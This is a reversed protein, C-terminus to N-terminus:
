LDTLFTQSDVAGPKFVVRLRFTTRNNQVRNNSIVVSQVYPLDRLQDQYANVATANESIAEVQLANGDEATFRTFYIDEPRFQNVADLMEFPLLQNTTIQNIKALIDAKQQVEEARPATDDAVAQRKEYLKALAVLGFEALGLFLFLLLVIVSARWYWLSWGHKKQLLAKDEAKRIDMAWLRSGGPLPVHWPAGPGDGYPILQIVPKSRPQKFERDRRYIADHIDVADFEHIPNALTPEELRAVQKKVRAIIRKRADELEEQSFEPDLTIGVVAQPVPDKGPLLIGSLTSEHLLFILTAHEFKLGFTQAFDPFAYDFLDSDAMDKRLKQDFATYVFIRRSEENFYYGWYLQDLNFPSIEEVSLEAFEEVERGKLEEPVAFARSVFWNGPVLVPDISEESGSLQQIWQPLKPM